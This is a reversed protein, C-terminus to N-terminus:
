ALKNLIAFRKRSCHPGPRAALDEHHGRSPVPDFPAPMANRFAWEGGDCDIARVDGNILFRRQHAAGNAASAHVLYPIWLALGGPALDLQVVAAQGPPIHISPSAQRLM